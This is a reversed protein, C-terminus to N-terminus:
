CCLVPTCVNALQKPYTEVRTQVRNTFWINPFPELWMSFRYPQQATRVTHLSLSYWLPTRYMREPVRSRWPKVSFVVFQKSEYPLVKFRDSGGSKSQYAAPNSISTNPRWFLDNCTNWLVLILPRSRLSQITNRASKACSNKWKSAVNSPTSDSCSGVTCAPPNNFFVKERYPDVPTKRLYTWPAIKSLKYWLLDCFTFFDTNQTSFQGSQM